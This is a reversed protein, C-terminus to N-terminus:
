SILDFHRKLYKKITSVYKENIKGIKKVFRSYDFSTICYVKVVSDIRLNNVADAIIVIDDSMVKSTKSTLPIVTVLNSKISQERSQVVIAPRQSQFEHGVSPTFEALVIDGFYLDGKKIM